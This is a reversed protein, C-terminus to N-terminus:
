GQEPKPDGRKRMAYKEEVSLKGRVNFMKQRTTLESFLLEDEPLIWECRAIAGAGEIWVQAGWSLYNEKLVSPAGFNQRGIPWGGEELLLLMERDAADGCIQEPKLQLKRFERIFRGAGAEKNPERWTAALEIKNGDRYAIVNEDHGAGFDCFAFRFGPRHVPPNELCRRLDIENLVYRDIEDQDMFEGYISIRTFPHREGYMDIIRQIKEPAIHPCDKLGAAM